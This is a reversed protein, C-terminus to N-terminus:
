TWKKIFQLIDPFQNSLNGVMDVDVSNKTLDEMFRYFVSPNVTRYGTKVDYLINSDFFFYFLKKKAALDSNDWTEYPNKGLEIVKDLATRYPVSLDISTANKHRLKELKYILSEIRQEYRVTVVGSNSQGALDTYKEIEAEIEKIAKINESQNKNVERVAKQWCKDFIKQFYKIAKETPRIGAMAEKFTVDLIDRAISKKYVLCGKTQCLYYAFARNRGKSFCATLPLNCYACNILRRLEFETNRDEQLRTICAPANLRETNKLFVELSILPEHNGKRREIGWPLFEVFGAYFPNALLNRVSALYKEPPQNGYVGKVKLFKAVENLHTFKLNAFGELAIKIYPANRNKMPVKGLGNVKQATYGPPAPFAWFGSEMRAKMKQIVQRKNQERELQNQAALITEVFTGEPTDEFKFNLCEVQTKRLTFAGRLEIHFKTDRAFRKLDDFIVVFCKDQHKDIYELLERMAPRKMFDGGGTFTDHFNKEVIYGKSEAYKVCRHEQSILGSGEKEQQASSVRNYILAYKQENNMQM